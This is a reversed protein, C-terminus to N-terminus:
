DIPELMFDEIEVSVGSQLFHVLVLLRSRSRRQTVLGEVGRMVGSKVRVRRGPQLRSEVTLPADALVLREINRLDGLLEAQDTVQLTECLRNSQMATVREEPTGYLFVYNSFLPIHSRVRRGRIYSDKWVLPLYFPVGRAMLHRAVAKEQRAKTMLAWWNRDEDGEGVEDLLNKPFM